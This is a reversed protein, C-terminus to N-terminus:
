KFFKFRLLTWIAKLGDSAKIKKGEMVSRPIYSIPVEFIKINSRILKATIEHDTEFGSTKIDLNKFFNSPYIKYGTLTDTIWVRYLLLTWFTLVLNATWAAFSQNKYRRFLFLNKQENFNKYRSGYIAANPNSKLCSLMPLYDKPDYELDADQM